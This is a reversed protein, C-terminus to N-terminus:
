NGVAIYLTQAGSTWNLSFGLPTAANAPVSPVVVNFQYLGVADPALGWYGLAAQTSGFFVQFPLTLTSNGIAIEGAPINPTVPGFGVGWLTVTDGPRAPRSAVGPIAGAPLAFSGDPFTAAVYQKGGINFSTPALLGPEVSAVTVPYPASTGAATTVTIQQVGPNVTSPVQVDVQGTSIYDVFASQGGITVSTGSLSTPAILDNDPDFDSEAWSRATSALNTGYIEIWSGPSVKTFGGFDQATVVGGSSITPLSGPNAPPTLMRIVNNQTDAVYVNGAKDVAVGEPYALEAATAPGGDGSYGYHGNGAITTIVGSPSVRRIRFNLTDAIYLNGALDLAIAYPRNLEANVALNGDGAFGPLGNGAVTYINGNSVMRVRHNFTDAIYVNGSPAVIVSQPWNLNALFALGGDGLTGAAGSGAFTSITGSPASMERIRNNKVDAIYLNNSSDLAVGCPLNLNALDASAGDGSLGPLLYQGAIENIFGNSRTVERIVENGSDGIVINGAPDVFVGCPLNLGAATAAAGDGGYGPAGVGAVTSITGNAQVQRIAYNFTDAIYLTLAADVALATPNNLQGATAAGGDGSFGATNNGAITTITYSQAPCWAPAFLAAAWILFVIASGEFRSQRVRTSEM